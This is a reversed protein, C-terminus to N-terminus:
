EVAAINEDIGKTRLTECVVNCYGFPCRSHVNCAVEEFPREGLHFFHIVSVVGDADFSSGFIVAIFEAVFVIPVCYFLCCVANVVNWVACVAFFINNGSPVANAEVVGNVHWISCGFHVDKSNIIVAAIRIEVLHVLRVVVLECQEDVSGCGVLAVNVETSNVLAFQEVLVALHIGM